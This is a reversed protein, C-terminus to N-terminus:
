DYKSIVEKMRPLELLDKWVPDIKIYPVSLEQVASKLKDVEQELNEIKKGVPNNIIQRYKIM